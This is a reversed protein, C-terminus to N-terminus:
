AAGIGEKRTGFLRGFTNKELDEFFMCRGTEGRLRRVERIGMAGLMELLQNHWAGMLNVIRKAAFDPFIDAMDIPCVGGEECEGCLRCELAILLPVDIAVLDAGCIIAKAMHEALAIGGSAMLTVQDRIGDKVLACHIDRLVDRMHRPNSPANERGHMDFVLHIVEAGERALDVVRQKAEPSAQMRIAVIRNPNEKKLACWVEAIEACDPVMVMLAPNSAGNALADAPELLPIFRNYTEDSSKDPFDGSRFIAMSGIEETATAI